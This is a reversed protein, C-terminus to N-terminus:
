LRMSFGMGDLEHLQAQYRSLGQTYVQLSQLTGQVAPAGTFDCKGILIDTDIQIGSSAVFGKLVKDVCVSLTTGNDTVVIKSSEGIPLDFPGILAPTNNLYYGAYWGENYIIVVKATNADMIYNTALICQNTSPTELPTYQLIMTWTPSSTFAYNTLTYFTSGNLGIGSSSVDNTGIANLTM